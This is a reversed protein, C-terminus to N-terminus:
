RCFMDPAAGWLFAQLVITGNISGYFVGADFHTMNIGASLTLLDTQGSIVSIDSDVSEDSGQDQATVASDLPTFVRIYYNGAAALTYDVGKYYASTWASKSADLTVLYYTPSGDSFTNVPEAYSGPNEASVPFSGSIQPQM